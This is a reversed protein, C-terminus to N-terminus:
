NAWMNGINGARSVNIERDAHAFSCIQLLCLLGALWQKRTQECQSVFHLFM